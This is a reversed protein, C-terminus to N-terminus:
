TMNKYFTKTSIIGNTKDKVVIKVRYKKSSTVKFSFGVSSSTTNYVTKTVPDVGANAYSTSGSAAQQLTVTMKIYEAIGAAYAYARGSGVTSSDRTFTASVTIVARAMNEDVDDLYVEPYTIETIGEPTEAAAYIPCMLLTGIVMVIVFLRIKKM